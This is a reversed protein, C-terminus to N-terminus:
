TLISTSLISSSVSSMSTPEDDMYRFGIVGTPFKQYLDLMVIGLKTVLNNADYDNM